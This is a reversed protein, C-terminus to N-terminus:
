KKTKVLISKYEGGFRSKGNSYWEYGKPATTAGELKIYGEPVSNRVETGRSKHYAVTYKNVKSKVSKIMKDVNERGTLMRGVGYASVTTENKIQALQKETLNAEELQKMESHWNSDELHALFEANTYESANWSEDGRDMHSQMKERMTQYAQAVEERTFDFAGKTAKGSSAGRGGFLQINLKM